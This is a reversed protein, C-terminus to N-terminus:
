RRGVKRALLLAVTAFPMGLGTTRYRLRAAFHLRDGLDARGLQECQRGAINLFTAALTHFGHEAEIRWGARALLRRLRALGNPLLGLAGASWGRREPLLHALPRSAVIALQAGVNARATLSWITSRWGALQPEAWLVADRGSQAFTPLRQAIEPWLRPEDCIVLPADAGLSVLAGDLAARYDLPGLGSMTLTGLM